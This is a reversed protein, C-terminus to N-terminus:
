SLDDMKEVLSSIKVIYENWLYQSIHSRPGLLIKAVGTSSQCTLRACSKGGLLKMGARSSLPDEMATQGKCVWSDASKEMTFYSTLDLMNLTQTALIHIGPFPRNKVKGRFREYM